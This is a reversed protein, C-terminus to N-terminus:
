IQQLRGAYGSARRQQSKHQAELEALRRQQVALELAAAKTQMDLAKYELDECEQQKQLKQRKQPPELTTISSAAFATFDTQTLSVPMDTCQSRKLAWLELDPMVFGLRHMSNLDAQRVKVGFLAYEISRMVELVGPLQKKMYSGQYLLMKIPLAQWYAQVLLKICKLTEQAWSSYRKSNALLFSLGPILADVWAAPVCVDARGLHHHQRWQASGKTFGALIAQKDLSVKPDQMYARQTKSGNWDLSTDIDSSNTGEEALMVTVTHRM